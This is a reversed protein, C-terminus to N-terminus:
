SVKAPVVVLLLNDVCLLSVFLLLTAGNLVKPAQADIALLGKLIEVDIIEVVLSGMLLFLTERGDESTPPFPDYYFKILADQQTRGTMADPVGFLM